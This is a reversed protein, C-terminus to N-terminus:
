RKVINKFLHSYEELLIELTIEVTELSFHSVLSKTELTEKNLFKTAFTFIQKDDHYYVFVKKLKEKIFVSCVMNDM